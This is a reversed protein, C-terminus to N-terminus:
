FRIRQRTNPRAYFRGLSLKKGIPRNINLQCTEPSSEFRTLYDDLRFFVGDRARVVDYTIDSHTLGWDTVPIAAESSPMIQGRM